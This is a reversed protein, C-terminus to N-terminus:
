RHSQAVRLHASTFRLQNIGIKSGRRPEGFVRGRSREFRNNSTVGRGPSALPPYGVRTLGIAVVNFGVVAIAIAGLLGDNTHLVAGLWSAPDINYAIVCVLMYLVQCGYLIYGAPTIVLGIQSSAQTRRILPRALWRLGFFLLVPFIVFIGGLVVVAKLFAASM